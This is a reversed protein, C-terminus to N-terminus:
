LEQVHWLELFGAIGKITHFGRFASNLAETDSPNRELALAQAEIASLHDRSELVFDALLESDAAPPPPAAAAAPTEMARQLLLMGQQMAAADFEGTRISTSMQAAAAALEGAQEEEALVQIRELEPIWNAADHPEDVVLRLALTEIRQRLNASESM